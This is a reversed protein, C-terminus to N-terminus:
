FYAKFILLENFKDSCKGSGTEKMWKKREVVVVVVVGGGVCAKTTKEIFM